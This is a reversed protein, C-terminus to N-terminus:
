AVRLTQGRRLPHQRCLVLVVDAPDYANLAHPLGEHLQQRFHKQRLFHAGGVYFLLSKERLPEPSVV